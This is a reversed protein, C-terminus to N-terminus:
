HALEVKLKKASWVEKGDADRGQYVPTSELTNVRTELADLKDENLSVIRALVVIVLFLLVCLATSGSSPM